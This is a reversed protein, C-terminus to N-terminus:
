ADRFAAYSEWNAGRKKVIYPVHYERLCDCLAEVEAKSPLWQTVQRKFGAMM